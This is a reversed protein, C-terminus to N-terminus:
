NVFYNIAQLIVIDSDISFFDKKFDL